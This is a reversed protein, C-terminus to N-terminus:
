INPTTVNIKLIQYGSDDFLLEKAYNNLNFEGFRIIYINKDTNNAVFGNLEAEQIDKFDFIAHVRDIPDGYVHSQNICYVDTGNVNNLFYVMARPSTLIVISNNDQTIQALAENNNINKNYLDNNTSIMTAIGSILVLVILAFSILFLRKNNIKNLLISIVLWLIAAAFILCSTMFVPKYVVSVIIGIALTTIFVGFGSIILFQDKEDINKKQTYFVIGLVILMLIAVFGFLIGSDNAFYELSNLILDLNVKVTPELAQIQNILTFIWPIYLVISVVASIAWYKIKDKNNKFIYFLLFLYIVAVTLGAFYHTYAALISFVTFLIWSKKDDNTIIDRFYIFALLTFLIAWSYMRATLFYTFFESMVGISLTFIGATLWGYDKRIKVTSILIIIAYPIVSLLKLIFVSNGLFKTALKALLYYLPPNFEGKSITLIDSIPFNSITLTFYEGINSIIHNLPTLLMYVLILISLILFIQGFLNKQTNDLRM